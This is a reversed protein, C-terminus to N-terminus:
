MLFLNLRNLSDIDMKRSARIADAYRLRTLEAIVAGDVSTCQIYALMMEALLENTHLDFQNCINICNVIDSELAKHDVNGICVDCISLAIQSLTELNHDLNKKSFALSKEYSDKASNYDKLRRFYEGFQFYTNYQLRKRQSKYDALVKSLLEYELNHNNNGTISIYQAKTKVFSTKTGTYSDDPLASIYFEIKRYLKQATRLQNRCLLITLKERMGKILESKRGLRKAADISRDYYEVAISLEKGQHRYSHAIGWLCKAEYKEFKRNIKTEDLLISYSAISENYNNQLHYLKATLLSFRFQLDTKPSRAPVKCKDIVERAAPYNGVGILGEIYGYVIALFTGESMNSIISNWDYLRKYHEGVMLLFAYNEEDIATQIGDVITRDRVENELMILYYIQEYLMGAGLYYDYIEQIIGTSDSFQRCIYDRFLEHMKITQNKKDFEILSCNELEGFCGTPLNIDFKKLLSVPIIPNIISLFGIYQALICLTEELGIIIRNLYNDMRNKNYTITSSGPMDNNLLLSVFIPLGDSFDIIQKLYEPSLSKSNKEAFDFIDDENFVSLEIYGLKKEDTINLFPQKEISGVIIRYRNSQELFINIIAEIEKSLGSNNVNDLIIFIKKRKVTHIFNEALEVITSGLSPFQTVMQEDINRTGEGSLHFYIAIGKLKQIKKIHAKRGRNERNLKKNTCDCFFRLFASKGIGRKGYVNAVRVNSKLINALDNLNQDRDAFVGQAVYYTNVKFRRKRLKKIASWIAGIVATLIAITASITQIISSYEISVNDVFSEGM